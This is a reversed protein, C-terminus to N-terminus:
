WSGDVLLATANRALGAVLPLAQEASAQDPGSASTPIVQVRRDMLVKGGPRERATIQATVVLRYDRPSLADRSQLAIPRRDYDVIVGSVVVDTDGHTSLRYTGDRMMEKRLAHTVTESLRPMVTKNELPQIQVSRAGSREGNTPGLRYACGATAFAVLTLFFAAKRM